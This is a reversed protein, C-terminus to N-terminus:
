GNHCAAKIGMRDLARAGEDCSSTVPLRHLARCGEDCGVNTSQPVAAGANGSTISPTSGCASLASLVLLLVLLSAIAMQHLKLTTTAQMTRAKRRKILPKTATTAAPLWM